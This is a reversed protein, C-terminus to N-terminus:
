AVSFVEVPFCHSMSAQPRCSRASSDASAELLAFRRLTTVVISLRKHSPSVLFCMVLLEVVPWSPM